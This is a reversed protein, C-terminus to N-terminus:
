IAEGFMAAIIRDRQIGEGQLESFIGGDRFVVVRDCLEVLEELDTSLLVITMNNGVLEHFLRYLDRKTPIDVGRTPDNLLLVRPNTYIWRALVVKQQNGGSLSGVLQSDNEYIISLKDKFLKLAQTVKRQKVIRSYTPMAFNDKISLKLFLGETKRDRPVYSIEQRYAQKLSHISVENRQRDIAAVEGRLSSARLGALARLFIEQGHGELGALGVIEGEYAQFDIPRSNANFKLKTTRLVISANEKGKWSDKMVEGSMSARNEGSMQRLIESVSTEKPNLTQISVGNRIVTLRDALGQIEDIRHSIYIVSQGRSRRERLHEFLRDRDSVDLASTAEDLIVINPNLMLARVIVVIQQKSLPLEELSTNLDIPDASLTLLLQHAKDRFEVGPPGSFFGGRGLFINELVSLAPV